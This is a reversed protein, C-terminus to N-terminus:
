RLMRSLSDLDGSGLLGVRAFEVKSARVVLTAPVTLIPLSELLADLDTLEVVSVRSSVLFTEAGDGPPAVAYARRNAPLSDLFAEWTPRVLKGAPCSRRLLFLAVPEPRTRSITAGM